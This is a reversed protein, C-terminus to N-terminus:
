YNWGKKTWQGKKVEGVVGMVFKELIQWITREEMVKHKVHCQSERIVWLCHDIGSAINSKVKDQEGGEEVHVHIIDM